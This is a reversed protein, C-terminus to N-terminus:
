VLCGPSLSQLHETMKECRRFYKEDLVVRGTGGKGGEYGDGGKGGKGGTAGAAQMQQIVAQLGAM